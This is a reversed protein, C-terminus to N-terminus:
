SVDMHLTAGNSLPFGNPNQYAVHHGAQGAPIPQHPEASKEMQDINENFSSM